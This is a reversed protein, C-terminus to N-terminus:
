QYLIQKCLETSLSIGPLNPTEVGAKGYFFTAGHKGSNPHVNAYTEYTDVEVFSFAPCLPRFLTFVPNTKMVLPRVKDFLLCFLCLKVFICSRILHHEQIVFYLKLIM